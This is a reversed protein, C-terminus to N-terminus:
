ASAGEPTEEAAAEQAPDRWIHTRTPNRRDLGSIGSWRSLAEAYPQDAELRRLEEALLDGLDREGLPMVRDARGERSMTASRSDRRTVRLSPADGFDVQVERIGEGGDAEVDITTGLRAGLWGAMLCASPDNAQAIVRGGTPAEEVTDFAAALLGRWWTIRPWALDTDGPAYDEARIRLAELPNGATSSDTIRRDALVGL